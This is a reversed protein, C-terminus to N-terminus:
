INRIRALSEMAIEGVTKAQLDSKDYIIIESSDNILEKLRAEAEKVCLIGLAWAAIGRKTNDSSQLYPIVRPVADRVMEPRGEGIRGVAWLVGEALMDEDLFSVIIPAIDSFSDPNNRVIEGLMEPSSWGIGGSEDRIMWLLRGVLNRVIDPSARSIEKSVIGIAEIARWCLIDKKDYTLSILAKLLKNESDSLSLLEEYRKEALLRKIESKM